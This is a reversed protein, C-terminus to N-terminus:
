PPPIKENLFDPDTNGGHEAFYSRWVKGTVTDLVLAHEPMGAIAFRGVAIPLNRTAGLCLSLVVGAALGM